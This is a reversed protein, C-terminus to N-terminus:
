LGDIQDVIGTLNESLPGVMKVQQRLQANYQDFDFFQVFIPM